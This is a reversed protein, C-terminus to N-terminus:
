YRLSIRFFIGFSFVVFRRLEPCDLVPGFFNDPFAASLALFSVFFAGSVVGARPFNVRLFGIRFVIFFYFQWRRTFRGGRCRRAWSLSLARSGFEIVIRGLRRRSESWLSFSCLYDFKGGIVLLGLFRGRRSLLSHFSLRLRLHEWVVVDRGFFFFVRALRLLVRCWPCFRSRFCSFAFYNEFWSFTERKRLTLRRGGM